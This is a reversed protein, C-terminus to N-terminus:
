RNLCPGSHDASTVCSRPAARLATTLAMGETAEIAAAEDVMLRLTARATAADGRAVHRWVSLLVAEMDDVSSRCPRQFTMLEVSGRDLARMVRDFPAVAEADDALVRAAATAPDGGLTCAYVWGRMALLLVRDAPPLAAVPCDLFKYVGDSM